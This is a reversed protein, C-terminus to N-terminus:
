LYGLAKLRRITEPDLDLGETGLLHYRERFDASLADHDDLLARAAEAQIPRADLVNHREAPDNSLDYLEEKLSHLTRIYKTREFTVAESDEYFAVAM